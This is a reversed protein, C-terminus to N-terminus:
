KVALKGIVREYVLRPIRLSRYRRKHMTEPRPLVLVGREKEFLRIVTRRSFGTLESVDDVTFTPKDLISPL